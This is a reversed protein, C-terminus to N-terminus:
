AVGLVTVTGGSGRYKLAGGECYLVGGGTPNTSPVTAANAIGIVGVGSGFASQVNIGINGNGSIRLREALVGSNITQIAIASTRTADTPDTWFGAVFGLTRDAATSSNAALEFSAGFNAGPTGSTRHTLTFLKAQNSTGADSVIGYFAVGSASQARVGAGSDSQAFIANQNNGATASGITVTAHTDGSKWPVYLGDAQSGISARLAAAGAQTIQALVASASDQVEFANATPSAALKITLGKTGAAGTTLAQVGTFANGGSLNAKGLDAATRDSIETALASTSAADTIGYGALTTPTATITSWPQSHVLPAADTIGYGALTTPTSTITSWPQNHSIHAYVLDAEAPLLYQDHPDAAAEHADLASPPVPPGVTAARVEPMTIPTTGDPISVRFKEGNPYTVLYWARILGAGDPWLDVSYAGTADTTVETTDPPFSNAPIFSGATRQFTVLGGDWPAGDTRLLTDTVERTM